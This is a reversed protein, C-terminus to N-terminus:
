NKMQDNGYNEIYRCNAIINSFSYCRRFKALKSFVLLYFAEESDKSNKREIFKVFSIMYQNIM